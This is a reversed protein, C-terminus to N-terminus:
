QMEGFRFHAIEHYKMQLFPYSLKLTNIGDFLNIIVGDNKFTQTTSGDIYYESLPNYFDFFKTDIEYINWENVNQREFKLYKRELRRQQRLEKRSQSYTLIPL